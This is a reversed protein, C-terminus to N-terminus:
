EPMRLIAIARAVREGKDYLWRTVWSGVKWAPIVLLFVPIFLLGLGVRGAYHIWRPTSAPILVEIATDIRTM